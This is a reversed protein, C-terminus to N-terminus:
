ELAPLNQQHRELSDLLADITQTQITHPPNWDIWQYGQHETLNIEVDRILRALFIVLTKLCKESGTRKDHVEYQHVFKYNADLAIDDKSIGTEEELERLACQLDSEGPEVHGKPLDWRDSHKMLLFAQIPDGKVILVGCSRVQPLPQNQNTTHIDQM